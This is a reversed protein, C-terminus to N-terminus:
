LAPEPEDIVKYKFPHGISGESLEEVRFLMLADEAANRANFWIVKGLSPFEESDVERYSKGIIRVLPRVHAIQHQRKDTKTTEVVGVLVEGDSVRGIGNQANDDKM